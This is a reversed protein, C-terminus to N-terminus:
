NVTGEGVIEFSGDVAKASEGSRPEMVKYKTFDERSVFMMDSTGSDMFTPIQGNHFTRFTKSILAMPSNEEMLIGSTGPGNTVRASLVFHEKVNPNSSAVNARARQGFNPPFQGEKGGGPWYCNATSHTSRKKAKCNPNTCADATRAILATNSTGSTPKNQMGWDLIMGHTILTSFIDVTSTMAYLSPIVPLWKMTPPISRIVIGRWAEDTMMTTSLNDVNVKRTRLLKIHEQIDSGETYTTHDLAEQAHSRRMDTSKGWENQISDWADKATGTTIVGLGAVDTCNLTIHGRALQDRFTWEDFNPKTLYIPTPDSTTAKPDLTSEARKPINGNIYGTLGKSGLLQIM